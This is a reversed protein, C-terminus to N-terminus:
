NREMWARPGQFSCSYSAIQAAKELAILFNATQAYFYCFAGHFIDGAGLTDKTKTKPVEILFSVEGENTIIPKDGRTIATKQVGKNLLYTTVDSSSSIGPPVFDESCIAIDIFELLKDTGKKWSGGDFITTVGLEQYKKAQEIASNMYFGDFMVTSLGDVLPLEIRESDKPFYSYITRSGNTQNSLISAFVPDEVVTSKTDTFAVQYKELENTIMQRYPNDGIATLLSASGGLHSFTIAANTAPGGIYSKFASAKIKSNETPYHDTFFHLDITLLGWFLGKM